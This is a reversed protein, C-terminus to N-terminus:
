IMSFNDDGYDILDMAAYGIADASHKFENKPVGARKDHWVYNNLDKKINNSRSTIILTYGQITNITRLVSSNEKGRLKQCKVINLGSAELDYILQQHAADGVIRDKTGVLNILADALQDKGLGGQYLIEDVYIIKQDEDLAIKVLCNPDSFGFDLGYLYPLDENFEGEEWDDYIVGEANYKFGGLVTHKYRKWQKVIKKPQSDKQEKTLSEYFDYVIKLDDYDKRNHQALNDYNDLYTSHIYMVNDKIGTFGEQVGMDEFFETYIWHERTPPNFTLINFCQVDTARISKKISYWEEYTKGEEAEDMVFMSFGELSKLKATQNLSSTKQGSIFIKGENNLCEYTNNAFRFNGDCGLLGMRNSLAESISQDTSNMTYRTYLVRHNYDKVAIPIFVSQAFSKGSDRGGYSLVTDVKSLQEWYSFDADNESLQSIMNKAELLQFLQEFKPALNLEM